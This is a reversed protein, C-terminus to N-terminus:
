DNVSICKVTFNNMEACCFYCAIFLSPNEFSLPMVRLFTACSGSSHSAFAQTRIFTYPNLLWTEM